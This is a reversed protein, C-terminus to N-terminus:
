RLLEQFFKRVYFTLALPQKRACRERHSPLRITTASYPQTCWYTYPLPDSGRDHTKFMDPTWQSLVQIDERVQNDRHQEGGARRLVLVHSVPTHIHAHTNPSLLLKM